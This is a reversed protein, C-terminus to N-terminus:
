KKMVPRVGLPIDLAKSDSTLYAEKGSTSETYDKLSTWIGFRMSVCGGSSYWYCAEYGYNDDISKMGQRMEASGPTRSVKASFYNHTKRFNNPVIISRGNPGTIRYAVSGGDKFGTISCNDILEQAQAKTPLRWAEGWTVTAVDYKTGNINPGLYDISKTNPNYCPHNEKGVNTWVDESESTYETWVENFETFDSYRGDDYWVDTNSDETHKYYSSSMPKTDAWMYHGGEQDPESAGVNCCAWLTGSPLGLDIAHPHDSNPCNVSTAHEYNVPFTKSTGKQIDNEGNYQVYPYLVVTREPGNYYYAYRTDPYTLGGLNACSIKKDVGYIDHYIYGWDKVNQAEKALEVTTTANFKYFYRKGEYEYGQQKSYHSGTQEFNVIRVPFPHREIPASPNALIDFLLLKVTPHVKYNEDGSLGDFQHEIFHSGKSFKDPSKWDSVAQGKSDFLRLGVEVPTILRRETTSVSSNASTRYGYREELTTETFEPVLYWKMLNQNYKWPLDFSQEADLFNLQISGNIAVNLDITSAKLREYAKTDESAKAITKNSLVFDGVLEYGGEVRLAARALETMVFKVGIETFVGAALTGKLSGQPDFDESTRKFTTTPKQLGKEKSNYSWDFTSRFHQKWQMDIALEASAKFFLGWRNYFFLFTEGLPIDILDKPANFDKSYESKGNLTFQESCDFDGVVNISARTGNNVVLSAKVTFEPKVQATFSAQVPGDDDDDGPLFFNILEDSLSLGIAPLKITLGEQKGSRRSKTRATATGDQEFDTIGVAYYTEFIEELNVATVKVVILDGEKAVSAVDGAFSREALVVRSGVAPLLSEPTSGSLYLTCEKNDVVYQALSPALDSVGPQLVTPPTVFSISDIIGLPIKCISDELVIWQMVPEDHTVGAEDEFGYYFESIESRLFAKIDGDKQYVYIVDGVEQAFGTMAMLAMYIILYLRKMM